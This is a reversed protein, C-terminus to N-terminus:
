FVRMHRIPHCLLHRLLQPTPLLQNLTPIGLTRGLQRGHIVEGYIAFPRGLLKSAGKIDGSVVYARIRTSSLPAGKICVPACPCIEIGKPTCIEELERVGAAANKGFRYNFGCSIYKVNLKTSLMEIFQEPSMNRVKDFDLYIVVDVSMSDLIKEKLARNTIEPVPHGSETKGPNKSFTIVATKMDQDSAKRIVKAHGLHVGDFFGLAAATPEDNWKLDAM